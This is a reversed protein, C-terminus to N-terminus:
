VINHYILARSNSQWNVTRVGAPFRAARVCSFFMPWSLFMGLHDPPCPHEIPQARSFVNRAQFPLIGLNIYDPWINKRARMNKNRACGWSTWRAPTISPRRAFFFCQGTKAGQRIARACSLLSQILNAHGLGFFVGGFHHGILEWPLWPNRKRPNVRFFTEYTKSGGGWEVM